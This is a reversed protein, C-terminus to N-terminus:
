KGVHMWHKGNPDIEWDIITWGAEKWEHFKVFTDESLDVLNEM